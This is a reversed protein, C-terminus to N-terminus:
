FKANIGFTVISTAPSLDAGIGQNVNSRNQGNELGDLEVEPDIGKYKSRYEAFIFPQQISTFVRLSTMGLKGAWTTPVNYGFNINRVKLFSGDFYRLTSGNRPNEQNVNPRPFENTPNDPTWYNIDLNNYRGALTNNSAHFQSVIFQGVRAYLFFSLDFGKYSFRNTMGTVFSPIASGLIQRDDANIIGDNNLDEIKIEGPIYGYSKALDAEDLQWIGVKKLDFVVSLPEGIFRGASIDDVKGNALEVIEEQNHNFTLDTNWRFGGKDINVTSLTLEIGKNRTHGINTTFGGFGTSNPLPQPALLDTTNTIYYEASGSIRGNGFSFDLGANATASTEWKLDPNGISGPRYGFAATNDWAYSTRSLRAQTQYPDIATNGVAGYSLRLKLQDMWRAETLFNESKINWAFAVSPFYGFKTNAGFRSSGDARVTATFIYKEKFGYNVRAMYSLLTWESLFTGVGNVQSADALSYFQQARSPIGNVNIGSNEYNDRQFSQLLTVDLDHVTNFQKSYSLINELTYNLRFENGVSGSAPAGRRANTQADFFRGYRNIKFDPGFNFRYSLGDIIKWEAYLSNFIRYNKREDIVAGPVIEALPNTRLGDPTPLFILNGDDDYPKGLPNEALAGGLPNFNEGNRIYHSGLSSIGVRLKDNIKHDLNIRFTYRTLDQNKVVGKDKFYNASVNFQTKETGGSVGVQFNSISGTRLLADPYDTSRGSQIGELEVPEFLKADAEATAPGAPYQLAPRTEARRSERKYEAFEAGNFVDIRGLSKNIGTYTDVSVVTKGPTGRKTTIIVVGNSGRSGYIATSSADKLIEMSAIDNPNIDEIGGALPIGDVVFLPDNSANFSRRGRIRIQPTSGPRSGAMNVDVGAARGQLAQQANTIPLEGIEKSTVSSIAGTVQSKKRSGYGTVVVENLTKLDVGLNVDIVSRNGVAIEQTTFGVASIVLTPNAGTVNISYKGNADTTTGTNTNKLLVTVGPLATNDETSIITGTVNRDQASALMPITGLAWILLFTLLRVPRRAWLGSAENEQNTFSKRM